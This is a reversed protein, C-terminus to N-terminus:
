SILSWGRNPRPTRICVWRLHCSADAREHLIRVIEIVDGKLRYFLVHHEVPFSMLGPRFEDRSRGIWPNDKLTEFVRDFAADYEIAQDVGWQQLTYLQIGRFYRQARRTLVLRFEPSSM